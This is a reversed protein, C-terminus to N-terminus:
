SARRLEKVPTLSATMQKRILRLFNVQLQTPLWDARTTVGIAPIPEIPGYPVAALADDEYMLM